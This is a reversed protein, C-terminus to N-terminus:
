RPQIAPEPPDVATRTGLAAAACIVGAAVIVPLSAFSRLLVLALAIATLLLGAGPLVAPSRRIGAVALTVNVLGLTLWVFASTWPEPTVLSLAGTAVATMFALIPLSRAIHPSERHAVWQNLFLALVGGGLWVSVLYIGM